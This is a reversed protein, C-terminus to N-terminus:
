ERPRRFTGRHGASSVKNFSSETVLEWGQDGLENLRNLWQDRAFAAHQYTRDPDDDVVASMLYEWRPM